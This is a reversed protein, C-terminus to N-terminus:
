SFFAVEIYMSSVHVWHGRLIKISMQEYIKYKCAKKLPEM